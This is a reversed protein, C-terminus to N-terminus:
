DADSRIKGVHYKRLYNFDFHVWGKALFLVWCAILLVIGFTSYMIHKSTTWPAFYANLWYWDWVVGEVPFQGRWVFWLVDEFGFHYPLLVTLATLVMLYRNKNRSELWYSSVALAALGWFSLTLCLWYPQAWEYSFRLGFRYLDYHMILDIKTLVLYFLFVISLWVFLTRRNVFYMFRDSEEASAM